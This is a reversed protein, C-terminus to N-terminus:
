CISESTNRFIEEKADDAYYSYAVECYAGECSIFGHPTVHSNQYEGHETYPCYRCLSEGDDMEEFTKIVNEM